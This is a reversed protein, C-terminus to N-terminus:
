AIADASVSAGAAAAATTATAARNSLRKRHSQGNARTAQIERAFQTMAIARMRFYTDIKRHLLALCLTNPEVQETYYQYICITSPSFSTTPACLMPLPSVAVWVHRQVHCM